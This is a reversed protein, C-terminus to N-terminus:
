RMGEACAEGGAGVRMTEALALNLRVAAPPIPAREVPVNLEARQTIPGVQDAGENSGTRVAAARAAIWTSELSLGFTVRQVPHRGHSRRAADSKEQARPGGRRVIGRVDELGAVSARAARFHKPLQSLFATKFSSGLRTSCCWTALACQM